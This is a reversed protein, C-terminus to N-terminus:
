WESGGPARFLGRRAQVFDNEYNAHQDYTVDSRRRGVLSPVSLPLTLGWMQQQPIVHLIVGASACLSAQM